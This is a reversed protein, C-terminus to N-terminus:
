PMLTAEIQTVDFIRIRDMYDAYDVLDFKSAERNADADNEAMVQCAIFAAEAESIALYRDGFPGGDGPYLADVVYTSREDGVLSAGVFRVHSLNHGATGLAERGLKSLEPIAAQLQSHTTLGRAIEVEVTKIDPLFPSDKSPTAFELSFRTSQETM